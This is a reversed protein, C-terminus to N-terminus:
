GRTEAKDLPRMLRRIRIIEAVTFIAALTLFPAAWLACTAVKWGM